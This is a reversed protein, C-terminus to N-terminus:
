GSHPFYKKMQGSLESCVFIKERMEDSLLTTNAFDVGAIFRWSDGQLCSSRGGGPRLHRYM